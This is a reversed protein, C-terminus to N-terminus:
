AIDLREGKAKWGRIYRLLEGEHSDDGWDDLAKLKTGSRAFEDELQHRNYPDRTIRDADQALVVDVIGTEVLDLLDDLAPRLLGEGSFVEEFEDVVELNNRECYGRLAELQQRLSFGQEAQRKTSVRAYLAAKM